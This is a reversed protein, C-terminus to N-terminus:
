GTSSATPRAQAKARAQQAMEKYKEVEAQAAAAKQGAEHALLVMNWDVSVDSYRDDHSRAITEVDEQPREPEGDIRLLGSAPPPVTNLKTVVAQNETPKEKPPPSDSILTDIVSEPMGPPSFGTHAM